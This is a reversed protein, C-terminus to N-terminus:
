RFKTKCRTCDRITVWPKKQFSEECRPCSYAVLFAEEYNVDNRLSNSKQMGLYRSFISAGMGIIIGFPGPILHAASSIIAGGMSYSGVAESAKQMRDQYENWLKELENFEKLEEVTASYDKQVKQEQKPSIAPVNHQIKKIIEIKDKFIKKLDLVTVQGLKITVSSSFQYKKNPELKVDDAFTGNASGCDVIEIIMPALLKVKCHQRSISATEIKIHNDTSRGITLYPNNDMQILDGMSTKQTDFVVTKNGDSFITKENDFKVTQKSTAGFLKTADDDVTKDQLISIFDLPYDYSLTVKDTPKLQIKKNKEIKVGNVYTGNSSGIDIIFFGNHNKEIEAHKRSVRNQPDFVVYDCAPNRGVIIKM